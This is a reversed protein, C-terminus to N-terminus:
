REPRLRARVWLLLSGVLLASGVAAIIQGSVSGGPVVALRWILGLVAGVLGAVVPGDLMWLAVSVGAMDGAATPVPALLRIPISGKLAALIRLLVTVAAVGGVSLIASVISWPEADLSAQSVSGVTVASWVFMGCALAGTALLGPAVAHRALMGSASVPFLPPAGSGFATTAIGRCWPIIAFVGLLLAAGGLLSARGPSSAVVSSGGAGGLALAAGWLVGAGLMGLFAALSRAPSRVIGLLDRRAVSVWLSGRGARLRLRRGLRVPAGLKALAANPDGSGALVIVTDWRAAQERLVDRRLRAAIMPALLGVVLAAIVPVTAFALPAAAGGVLLAYSRAGLSEAGWVPDTIVLRVAVSWPDFLGGVWLQVAALGALSMSVWARVGRGLQGLLMAGVVLVGLSGGALVLAAGLELTLTGTIARAMALVGGVLAGVATGALYGRGLPAAFLRARSIPAPFLLDLEALGARAPGGHSGALVALATLLTLGAASVGVSDVVGFAGLGPGAPQRMAEAAGLVLVRLLPAAVTLSLMVGLYLRYPVNSQASVTTRRELVAQAARLRRVGGRDSRTM